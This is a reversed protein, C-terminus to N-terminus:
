WSEVFDHISVTFPRLHLVEFTGDVRLAPFYEGFEALFDGDRYLDAPRIWVHIRAEAHHQQFAAGGIHGAVIDFAGDLLAGPAAFSYVELVEGIFDVSRM